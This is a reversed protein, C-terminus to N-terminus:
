QVALQKGWPPPTLQQKLDTRQQCRGYLDCSGEGGAKRKVVGCKELDFGLRFGEPKHSIPRVNGYVNSGEARMMM